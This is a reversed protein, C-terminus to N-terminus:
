REGGTRADTVANRALRGHARRLRESVAQQSVGVRGALDATTANRPIDYYGADLALQVAEYQPDSLDSPSRELDAPTYVREVELDVSADPEPPEGNGDGDEADFALIESVDDRVPFWVRLTWRGESLVATEISATTTASLYGVLPGLEDENWEVRCLVGGELTSVAQAGAVTPDAELAAVAAAPEPVNTRVLSGLPGDVATLPVLEAYNEPDSGFEPLAFASPAVTFDVITTV